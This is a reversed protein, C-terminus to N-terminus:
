CKHNFKMSVLKNKPNQDLYLPFEFYQTDEHNAPLEFHSLTVSGIKILKVSHMTYPM